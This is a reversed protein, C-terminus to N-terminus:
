MYTYTSVKLLDQGGELPSLWCQVVASVCYSRKLTVSCLPSRIAVQLALVFPWWQVECSNDAACYLESGKVDEYVWRSMQRGYLLQQPETSAEKAQAKAERGRSESSTPRESVARLFSKFMLCFDSQARTKAFTIALLSLAVSLFVFSVPM